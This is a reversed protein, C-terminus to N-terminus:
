HLNIIRQGQKALQLYNQSDHLLDLIPNEVDKMYFKDLM